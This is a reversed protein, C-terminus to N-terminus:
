YFQLMFFACEFVDMFLCTLSYSIEAHLENEAIQEIGAPEGKKGGM